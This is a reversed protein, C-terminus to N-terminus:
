LLDPDQVNWYGVNRAAAAVALVMWTSVYKRMRSNAKSSAQLSQVRTTPGVRKTPNFTRALTRLSVLALGAVSLCAASSSCLCNLRYFFTLLQAFSHM